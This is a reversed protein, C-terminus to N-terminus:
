RWNPSRSSTNTARAFSDLMWAAAEGPVAFPAAAALDPGRGAEVAYPTM